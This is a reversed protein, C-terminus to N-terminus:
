RRKGRRQKTSKREAVGETVPHDKAPTTEARRPRAGARRLEAAAESNAREFIQAAEDSLGSQDDSDGVSRILSRTGLGFIGPKKVPDDETRRRFEKAIVRGGADTEPKMLAAILAGADKWPSEPSKDYSFILHTVAAAFTRNAIPDAHWETGCHYRVMDALQEIEGLLKYLQEKDAAKEDYALTGALRNRIEEGLSRGAADAAREVHERLNDDLGIKLHKLM